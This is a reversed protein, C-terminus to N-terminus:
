HGLVFKLNEDITRSNIKEVSTINCLTSTEVTCLLDQFLLMMFISYIEDNQGNGVDLGDIRYFGKGKLM